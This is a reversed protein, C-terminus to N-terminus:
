NQVVSVSLGKLRNYEKVAKIYNRKGRASFFIQMGPKIDEDILLEQFHRWRRLYIIFHPTRIM